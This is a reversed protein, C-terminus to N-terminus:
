DPLAFAVYADGSKTGMKGGGCAIVVYQRGAVAYTSPTAYGGAPLTAQWLMAGTAADFARIREDRTAAIFVLGGATVVPGGYNETGTVPVGKATLEPYEGLPVRWVIEGRNLDIANLTGWPPKVAPYGEPDNWRNYGTHGYPSRITAGSTKPEPHREAGPKDGTAVEAGGAGLRGLLLRALGRRDGEGLFGFSPMNGRGTALLQVIEEEKLKEGVKVLSPINRGIEGERNLGHCAACVANYFQEPTGAHGQGMAGGTEIMQLIWPMENSNVYLWGTGPDVAAGGWEAGGDFGPFIVTGNTSPPLWPQHPLIGRWRAFVAARAEPTRDTITEETFWQRAFPPPKLPVPQTPWAAEGALESRPVPREEIPFLARGSEREFVYVHGSKTTQAVADVRRGERELTVLTPPAPFDRDWLDHHVAQFHWKLRGTAADLALLCNAYLNSGLRDGGWFDFAASGTPAFVIGREEDVAMGAWCNAGGATSWAEPPWTEYGAEGPRPITHFTWVLRGSRVDYARIDGPSAPGPGESVRTPLILLDRYISGPTNGLVFQEAAPRGLGERIDVRGGRGFGEVLRGTAADLAFLDFGATYLVRREAGGGWVVVGRNVGLANGAGGGGFPDFRWREVGTAADVAFARLTPTTGYMVGEVVVPNCQIQSRNERSADGCRYTWAVRLRGVNGRDIQTLTSYHTRGADGLAAPWDRAALRPVGDTWGTALGFVCAAWYSSRRCYMIFASAADVGRGVGAEGRSGAGGM